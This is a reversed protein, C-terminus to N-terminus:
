GKFLHILPTDSNKNECILRRMKPGCIRANREMIQDLDFDVLIVRHDGASFRHPLISVASTNLNSSTWIGDMPDSGKIHSAPGAQKFM